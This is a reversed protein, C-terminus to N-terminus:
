KKRRRSQLSGMRYVPLLFIYGSYWFSFESEFPGRVSNNIGIQSAPLVAYSIVGDVDTFDSDFKMDLQGIVKLKAVMFKGLSSYDTAQVYRPVFNSEAVPSVEVRSMSVSSGGTDLSGEAVGGM